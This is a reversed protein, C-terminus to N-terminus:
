KEPLEDVYKPEFIPPDEHDTLLSADAERGLFEQNSTEIIQVYYGIYGTSGMDKVARFIKLVSDKPLIGWIKNGYYDFPFKEKMEKQSPMGSGGIRHIVLNRKPGFVLLDIKTRYKRGLFASYEPLHSVDKELLHACGSFILTACIISSIFFCFKKDM